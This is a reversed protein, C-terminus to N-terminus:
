QAAGTVQQVRNLADMSRTITRQLTGGPDRVEESIRNGSADLTYTVSNGRTDTVGTLRHASDYSYSVSTGDPLAVGTLQSANDYTYTTTRASGGPPTVSVTAVKGRPTYTIDTTIGKPDVIQRPRGAWDHLTYQTVHGAANTVSQLDGVSYGTDALARSEDHDPHQATHPTFAATYRAKGKTIRLDDIYGHFYETGGGDSKYGVLVPNTGANVGFTWTTSGLLAGNVFMRATNGSRTFAIHYWTGASFTANVPLVYTTGGNAVIGRIQGMYYDIGWSMPWQSIILKQGTSAGLATSPNIWAEIAFDSLGFDTAPQKLVSLYDGSGDLYISSGGFKSQTTSISANGVATVTSHFPSSETFTTAGNTGNAWLLLSVSDYDPDFSGPPNSAFSTSARYAFTVTRSNPDVTTLVRGDADYTYSTSRAPTASDVTGNSLLAQEVRKCVVPLAKGNSMAAASTCSATANGNFPDPQGHYVTTTKRLPETVTAAKRWDPHWTTTIKRSGAPLTAGVFTVSGCVTSPQLGEVRTTERNSGDYAYCTRTGDFDDLSVVNASTDYAVTSSSASNGSGAPQTETTHYTVGGVSTAGMSSAIGNPGTVSAGGPPVMTHVRTLVNGSITETVHWLPPSGWAVCYANAGGSAETCIARGDQDYTYTTLRTGNEDQIGTLAWPFDTREYLYTREKTDPWTIKSLYGNANYTFAVIGGDTGVVEKLRARTYNFVDYRFKVVRGQHDVIRSIVPGGLAALNDYFYTISGGAAYSISLLDGRWGLYTSYVDYLEINGEADILRIKGTPNGSGDNVNQLQIKEAPNVPVYGGGGFTFTIFRGNGRHAHVTVSSMGPTKRIFHLSKHVSSTWPFAFDPTKVIAPRRYGNVLSPQVAYPVLMNTNYYATLDERGVTIGLRESNFKGGELPVIPNGMKKLCENCAWKEEVIMCVNGVLDAGDKCYCKAPAGVVAGTTNCGGNLMAWSGSTVSVVVGDSNRRKTMTGKVSIGVSTGGVTNLPLNLEVTCGGATTTYQSDSHAAAYYNCAETAAGQVDSAVVPAVGGMGDYKNMYGLPHESERKCSIGSGCIDDAHLFPSALLVAFPIGVLRIVRLLMAFMAPPLSPAAIKM